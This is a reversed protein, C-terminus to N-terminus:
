SIGSSYEGLWAFSDLIISVIILITVIDQEDVVYKPIFFITVFVPIEYQIDKALARETLHDFTLIQFCLFNNGDLNDLVPGRVEIM